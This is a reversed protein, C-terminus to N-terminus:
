RRARESAPLKLQEAMRSIAVQWDGNGPQRFIRLTSYWPSDERDVLWPIDTSRPYLMWVPKGLAGALHVTATDVSILLDLHAMLGAADAFDAIDATIDIWNMDKPPKQESGEGKQLSFFQVKPIKGLPAFLDLRNTRVDAFRPRGAWVLGVKLMGDQPIKAAFKAARDPPAIL